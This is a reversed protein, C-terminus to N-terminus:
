KMKPRFSRQLDFGAAEIKGENSIVPEPMEDPVKKVRNGVFYAIDQYIQEPPFKAAFGTIDTLRPIRPEIISRRFGAYTLAFVPEKVTELALRLYARRCEDDLYPDEVDGERNNIDVFWRQRRPHYFRPKRKFPKAVRWGFTEAEIADDYYEGKEAVDGISQAEIVVVEGCLVLVRFSRVYRNGRTTRWLSGPVYINVDTQAILGRRYIIKPDGEGAVFDYYDKFPSIIKVAETTIGLSVHVHRGDV